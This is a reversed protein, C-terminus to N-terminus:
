FQILHITGRSHVTTCSYLQCISMVTTIIEAIYQTLSEASTLFLLVDQCYWAEECLSTSDVLRKAFFGSRSNKQSWVVDLLPDQPTIKIQVLNPSFSLFSHVCVFEFCSCSWCFPRTRLNLVPCLRKNKFEICFISYVEIIGRILFKLVYCLISHELCCLKFILSLIM